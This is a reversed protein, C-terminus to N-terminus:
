EHTYVYTSHKQILCLKCELLWKYCMNWGVANYTHVTVYAWQCLWMLIKNWCFLTNVTTLSSNTDDLASIDSYTVCMYMSIYWIVRVDCLYIDRTWVVLEWWQCIAVSVSQFCSFVYYSTLLSQSHSCVDNFRIVIDNFILRVIICILIANVLFVFQQNVITFPIAVSCRM